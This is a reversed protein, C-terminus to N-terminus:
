VWKTDAGAALLLATLAGLLMTVKIYLNVAHWKM